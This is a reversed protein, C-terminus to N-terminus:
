LIALEKRNIKFYIQKILGVKRDIELCMKKVETTM